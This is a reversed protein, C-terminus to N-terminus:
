EGSKSLSASTTDAMKADIANTEVLGAGDRSHILPKGGLKLHQEELMLMLIHCSLVYSGKRPMHEYGTMEGKAEYEDRVRKIAKVAAFDDVEKAIEPTEFTVKTRAHAFCNRIHRVRQLEECNLGAIKFAQAILIKGNFDSLPGRNEFLRPLLDKSKDKFSSILLEELVTEVMSAAMIAATRDAEKDLSLIISDVEVDCGPGGMPGCDQEMALRIRHAMFWASKYTIGLERHLQHASVGKKSGNVRRFALLWKNLPIKSDEFITGVTVTFPRECDNCKYVGPRTSKGALKTNRDLGGCRPCVPGHPWHLKELHERAKDADAYIPDTLNTM